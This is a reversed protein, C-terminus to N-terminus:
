LSASLPGALSRARSAPRVRRAAAGRGRHRRPRGDRGAHAHLAAAGLRPRDGRGHPEPLGRGRRHEHTRTLGRRHVPHGRGGGDRLSSRLDSRAEAGDKAGIDLYLDDFELPKREEGRKRKHRRAGVVAALPGDKTLLEVRQGLLVHPDFGGLQRVAILGDAGAHTAVLAIEDIHGVIALLPGGATGPVRVWSSGLVDSSVDGFARAAERWAEAAPGEQGSPGPATLLRELTEPIAM